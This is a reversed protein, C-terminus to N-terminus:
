PKEITFILRTWEGEEGVILVEKVLLSAKDVNLVIQHFMQKLDRRVPVLTVTYQENELIQVQFDKETPMRFRGRPTDAGFETVRPVPSVTEWRLQNPEQLHVKGNSILNEQLLPSHYERQWSADLVPPMNAERIRAFLDADQAFAVLGMCLWAVLVLLGRRM